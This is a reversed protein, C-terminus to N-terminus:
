GGSQLNGHFLSEDDRDDCANNQSGCGPRIARSGSRLLPFVPELRFTILRLGVGEAKLSPFQDAHIWRTAMPLTDKLPWHELHNTM